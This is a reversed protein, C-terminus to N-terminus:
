WREPVTTDDAEATPVDNVSNLLLTVTATDCLVPLHCAMIVLVIHFFSGNFNPNPTYTFTGDNNLVLTGNATATNGNDLTITLPDGNPIKGDNTTVDDSLVQDENVSYADNIAVPPCNIISVAVTDPPSTCGAVTQTVYYDGQNVLQANSITQNAGTASFSNPGTWNFTAGTEGTATLSIAAGRCVIGGNSETGDPIAINVVKLLM